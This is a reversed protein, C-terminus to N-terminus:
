DPKIHNVLTAIESDILELEKQLLVIQALNTKPLNARTTMLKWFANARKEALEFYKERLKEQDTHKHDIM